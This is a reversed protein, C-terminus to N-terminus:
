EPQLRRQPQRRRRRWTLLCWCHCCAATAALCTGEVVKSEAKPDAVAVQSCDVALNTEGPNAPTVLGTAVVSCWCCWAQWLGAPHTEAWCCGVVVQCPSTQAERHAQLGLSTELAWAARASARHCALQCAWGWGTPPLGAWCDASRFALCYRGAAALLHLAAAQPPSHAVPKGLGRAETAALHM